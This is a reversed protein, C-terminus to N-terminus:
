VIAEACIMELRLDVKRILSQNRNCDTNRRLTYRNTPDMEAVQHRSLAAGLVSDCSHLVPPLVIDFNALGPISGLAQFDFKFDGSCGM